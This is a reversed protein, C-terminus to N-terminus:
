VTDNGQVFGEMTITPARHHNCLSENYVEREQMYNSIEMILLKFFFLINLPRAWTYM